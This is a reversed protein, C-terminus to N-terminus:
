EDHATLLWTASPTMGCPNNWMEAWLCGLRLEEVRGTMGAIALLASKVKWAISVRRAQIVCVERSTKESGPASQWSSDVELGSAMKSCGAREAVAM